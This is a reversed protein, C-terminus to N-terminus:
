NCHEFYKEIVYRKSMFFNEVWIRLESDTTINYIDKFGYSEFDGVVIDGKSPLSGGFWNLLVYGNNTEVIFYNCNIEAYVIERKAAFTIKTFFILLLFIIFIYNKKIKM